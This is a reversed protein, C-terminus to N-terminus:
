GRGLLLRGRTGLLTSESLTRDAAECTYDYRKSQVRLFSKNMTVMSAGAPAHPKGHGFPPLQGKVYKEGEKIFPPSKMLCIANKSGVRNHM